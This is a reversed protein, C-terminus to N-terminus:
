ADGRGLLPRLIEWDDKGVGGTVFLLLGYSALGVPLGVAVGWRTAAVAVLVALSLAAVVRWAIGLLPRVRVHVPSRLHLAALFFLSTAEAAVISVAAGVAGLAPILLFNLLLNVGLALGTQVTVTGPRDTSIFYNGAIDAAQM